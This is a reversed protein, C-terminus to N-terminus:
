EFNDSVVLLEFSYAISLATSRLYPRFLIGKYGSVRRVSGNLASGAKKIAM